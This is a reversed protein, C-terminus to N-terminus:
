ADDAEIEAVEVDGLEYASAIAVAEAFGEVCRTMMDTLVEGSWACAEVHVMVEIGQGASIRVMMDRSETAM